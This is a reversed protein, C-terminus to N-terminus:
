PAPKIYPNQTNPRWGLIKYFVWELRRWFNLEDLPPNVVNTITCYAKDFPPKHHSAHQAPTQILCCKQLMMILRNLPKFKYAPKSHSWAHVQNGIGSLILAFGLVYLGLLFPIISAVTAALVSVLNLEVFSNKIFDTPKEHHLLNPDCIESGILGPKDKTCYADEFWHGVGTFFDALLVVSIITGIM